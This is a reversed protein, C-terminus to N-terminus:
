GAIALLALFFTAVLGNLIIGGVAALRRQPQRVVALLGMLVGLVPPVILLLFVLWRQASLSLQALWSDLSVSTLLFLLLTLILFSYSAITYPSSRRPHAPTSASSDNTM